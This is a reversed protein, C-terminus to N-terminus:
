QPPILWAMVVTTGHDGCHIDSHDSLKDILMLGRGDAQRAANRWRGHDIVTVEVRAPDPRFVAQLALEGQRHLYAHEVVNTTAEDVSLVLDQVQAHDLGTSAAWRSLDHRVTALSRPRAPLAPYHLDALAVPTGGTCPSGASDEDVMRWGNKPDPM